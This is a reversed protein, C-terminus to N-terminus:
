YGYDMNDQWDDEGDWDIDFVDLEVELRESMSFDNDYRYYSMELWRDEDM